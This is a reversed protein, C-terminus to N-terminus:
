KLEYAVVADGLTTGHSGHGNAAVVVQKGNVRYTM